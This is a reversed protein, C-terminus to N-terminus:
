RVLTLADTTASRLEFGSDTETWQSIRGLVALLNVGEAEAEASCPQEARGSITIGARGDEFFSFSGLLTGCPTDIGLAGFEADIYFGVPEIVEATEGDVTLSTMTFSGGFRANVVTPGSLDPEVEAGCASAILALTVIM